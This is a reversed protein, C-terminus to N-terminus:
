VTLTAEKLQQTYEHKPQTWVQETPGQEVVVGDKMVAVRDCLYRIVTLDHSVLLLTFGRRASLQALLELIQARVTVDLASVPEDALLVDPQSILARAIAVRQRQGGSLGAPDLEAADAMGVAALAEDVREGLEPWGVNLNEPGFAVDDAVVSAVMQSDPNQLVMGARSRIQFLLRGDRTDMGAVLVRGRTPRLLANVHRALTSKGSGNAGILAVFEGAAVHLNVDALVPPADPSASPGGKEGASAGPPAKYAFSVSQFDIDSL